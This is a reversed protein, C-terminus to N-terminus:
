EEMDFKYKKGVSFTRDDIKGVEKATADLVKFFIIQACAIGKSIPLTFISNNKLVLLIKGKHGPHLVGTEVSIGIISMSQRQTILGGMDTPLEIEEETECLLVSSPEFKLDTLKVPEALDELSFQKNTLKKISKNHMWCRSGIHIDVSIGEIDGINFPSIKMKQEKLLSLIKNGGIISM